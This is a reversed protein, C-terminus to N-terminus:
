AKANRIFAAIRDNSKECVNREVGSAVDVVDPNMATVADHVNEPNLGGAIILQLRAPMHARVGAALQWDFVRGTGGAAGDHAADLLLGHASEGYLEIAAALDSDKRLWIAKWVACGTRQAVDFVFEPLEQGHLQIVRLQLHAALATIDDASQDAFVGVRDLNAASQFIRAADATTQRRRSSPAFVVGIYDAGARAILHADEPRCVGCIKIRV